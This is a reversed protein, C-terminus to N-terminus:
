DVSEFEFNINEFYAANIKIKDIILCFGNINIFLIIKLLM